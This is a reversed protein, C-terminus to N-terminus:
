SRIPRGSPPLGTVDITSAGRAADLDAALQRQATALTEIDQRTPYEFGLTLALSIAPLRYVWFSTAAAPSRPTPHPPTAGPPRPEPMETIVSGM